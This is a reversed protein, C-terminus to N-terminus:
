VLSKAFLIRHEGPGAPAEEVGTIAYGEGILLCLMAPFRNMGKVRIERYGRDRALMEQLRLLARAVGQGRFDPNVGGLWSYFIDPSLPYGLKFGAVTGGEDEAVVLIGGGGLKGAMKVPDVPRLEPVRRILATIDSELSAERFSLPM